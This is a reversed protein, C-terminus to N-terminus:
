VYFFIIFNGGLSFMKELANLLDCLYYNEIDSHESVICYNYDCIDYVMLVIYWLSDFVYILRFRLPFLVYWYMLYNFSFSICM